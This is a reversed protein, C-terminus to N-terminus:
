GDDHLAVDLAVARAAVERRSRVGLKRRIRAVHTTVTRYSISLADAIEQDTYREVLLRLVERERRTLRVVSSTEGQGPCPREQAALRTTADWHTPM